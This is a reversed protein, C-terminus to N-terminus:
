RPVARRDRSLAVSALGVLGFVMAALTYGRGGDNVHLDYPAASGFLRRRFGMYDFAPDIETGRGPGARFPLAPLADDLRWLDAALVYPDSTLATLQGAGTRAATAGLVGLGLAIWLAALAVSALRALRRGGQPPCLALLPLLAPLCVSAHRFFTAPGLRDAGLDTPSALIVAANVVVALPAGRLAPRARWLRLYGALAAAGLAAALLPGTVESTPLGLVTAYFPLNQRVVISLNQPVFRPHAVNAWGSAAWLIGFQAFLTAAFAAVPGAGLAASVLVPRAARRHRWLLGVYLLGTYFAGEPRTLTVAASVIGLGIWRSKVALLLQLTVLAAWLADPQAAGLTYVQYQPWALVALAIGLARLRGAGCARGLAYVLFPLAVNALILPLHAAAYRHGFLAFSPVLVLPFLPLDVLYFEGSGPVGATVSYGAGRVLADAIGWYRILDDTAVQTYSLAHLLSSAGLVLAVPPGLTGGFWVLLAVAALALAKPAPTFVWAHHAADSAYLGVLVAVSLAAAPLAGLGGGAARRSWWYWGSIGAWAVACTLGWAATMGALSTRGFLGVSVLAAPPLALLAAAVDSSRSM